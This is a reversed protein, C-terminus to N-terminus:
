AFKTIEALTKQLLHPNLFIEHAQYVASDYDKSSGTVVLGAAVTLAVANQQALSGTGSLLSRLISANVARDGGGLETLSTPPIGLTAPEVTFSAFGSPTYEWVETRGTPSIEDMGDASRVVWVRTAGGSLLTPGILTHLTPDSVGVVRYPARAPNLLPGLLNFYTRKGFRKRASAAYKFAPHFNPAFMFGFNTAAISRAVEEPNLTIPVGLEELVDASGCMGSASRNGHKAVPIGLTACVIASATSINFTNLGDGGTGCTDLCPTDLLVPTMAETSARYLGMVEQPELTHDFIEFVSLLEDESLEGHLIRTQLAYASEETHIM